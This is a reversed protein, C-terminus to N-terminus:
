GDGDVREFNDGDVCGYCPSHNGICGRYICHKCIEDNRSTRGAVILCPVVILGVLIGAILLIIM